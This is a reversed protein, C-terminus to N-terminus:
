LQYVYAVVNVLRRDSLRGKSFSPMKLGNLGKASLGRVKKAIQYRSYGNRVLSPAPGTGDTKHCIGCSSKFAAGGFGVDGLRLMRDSPMKDDRIPEIPESKQEPSVEDSRLYARLQRVRHAPAEEGDYGTTQRKTLWRTMCSAIAEDLSSLLQGDWRNWTSRWGVNYLPYGPRVHGDPTKKENFNAHCHWCTLGTESIETSRFLMKGAVLDSDQAPVSIALGMVLLVWGGAVAHRLRKKVM